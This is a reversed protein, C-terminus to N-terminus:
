YDRGHIEPGKGGSQWPVHRYVFSGASTSSACWEPTCHYVGFWSFDVLKFILDPANVIEAYPALSKAYRKNRLIALGGKHLEGVAFPRQKHIAAMIDDVDVSPVLPARTSSAYRGDGRATANFMKRLGIITSRDVTGAMITRLHKEATKHM